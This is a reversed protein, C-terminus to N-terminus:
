YKTSFTLFHPSELGIIFKQIDALLACIQYLEPAFNWSQDCYKMVKQWNKMNWSKEMVVKMKWSKWDRHSGEGEGGGEDSRTVGRYLPKYLAHPVVNVVSM